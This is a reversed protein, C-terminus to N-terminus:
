RLARLPAPPVGAWICSGSSALALHTGPGITLVWPAPGTWPSCVHTVAQCQLGDTCALGLILGWM